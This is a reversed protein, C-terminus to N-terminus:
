RDWVQLFCAESWRGGELVRSCPDEWCERCWRVAVPLWFGGCSSELGEADSGSTRHVSRSFGTREEASGHSIDGLPDAAKASPALVTLCANPATGSEWCIGLGRGGAWIQCSLSSASRGESEEDGADAGSIWRVSLLNGTREEEIEHSIDKWRTRRRQRLLWSSRPPM